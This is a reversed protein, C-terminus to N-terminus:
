KAQPTRLTLLIILVSILALVISAWMVWAFGDLFADNVLTQVAVKQTANLGDPIALGALERANQTLTQAMETSISTSPLGAQLSRGFYNVIWAGFIAVALMNAVRTAANNVGSAIGAFEDPLSGMAARTLPAIMIALGLGYVVVIPVLELWYNEVTRSQSFLYLAVSSILMGTVLPLVTGIRDALRGVFQSLIMILISIPMITLGSWVASYGLVQQLYLPAFFFFASLGMYYLVTVVNISIFERTRLVQPPILPYETNFQRWIFALLAITGIGLLGQILPTSWGLRGGEILGFILGGFGVLLILISQWDLPSDTNSGYSEPVKTKAVYIGILVFPVNIFFIGRWSLYDVLVGSLLPGLAIISSTLSSWLGILKGREEPQSNANILALGVPVQLAGGIGQLARAGILMQPSVAFGAVMSALGFISMGIMCVRVRGYRDALIGGILLLTAMMLIYINVIWQLDALEIQFTKQITPLAVNLATQDLFIVGSGIAAVILAARTQPSM